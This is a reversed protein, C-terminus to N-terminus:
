LERHFGAAFPVPLIGLPVHEVLAAVPGARAPMQASRDFVVIGFQRLPTKSMAGVGVRRRLAILPERLSAEILMRKEQTTTLNRRQQCTVPRLGPLHGQLAFIGEGSRAEPEITALCSRKSQFLGLGEFRRVRDM